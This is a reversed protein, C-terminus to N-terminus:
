VTDSGNTEEDKTKVELSIIETGTDYGFNHKHSINRYLMKDSYVNRSEVCQKIDEFKAQGFDNSDGYFLFMNTEQMYKFWGGGKVKTKDTVIEHHFTVKMLVLNDGEIVFKPFKEHM